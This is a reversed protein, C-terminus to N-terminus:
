GIRPPNSEWERGGNAATRRACESQTGAGSMQERRVDCFVGIWVDIPLLSDSAIQLLNVAENQRDRSSGRIEPIIEAARYKDNVASVAVAFKLFKLASGHSEKDENAKQKRIHRCKALVM